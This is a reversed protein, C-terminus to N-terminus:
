ASRSTSRAASASCTTTDLVKLVNDDFQDFLPSYWIYNAHVLSYGRLRHLDRCAADIQSDYWDAIRCVHGPLILKRAASKLITVRAFERALADSLGVDLGEENHYLLDVEFGQSKYFRVLQMIRRSNGQNAPFLRNFCVLLCRPKIATSTM